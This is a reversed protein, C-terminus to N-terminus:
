LGWIEMMTYFKDLGRAMTKTGPPAESKYGKWGGIRGIIWASWALSGSPFPNKQKQTQGEYKLVLVKLLSKEQKNFMLNCSQKINERGKTLQLIKLAAIYTLLIIKQLGKFTEIQSEEVRLGRSKTIAFLEEIQWRATYWKVIKLADEINEVKHTTFLRWIVAPEGDKISIPLEKIEVANMTIKKPEDNSIKLPNKLEVEAYRVALKALHASRKTKLNHKVQLEIHGKIEQTELYDFLKLSNNSLVRNARIRCIVDTKSKLSTSFLQYIDSERDAVLTRSLAKNLCENSKNLAKIWKYSEKDEIPQNNYGRERKKPLNIDRTWVSLDGYGLPTLDATDLVLVPHAFVGLSWNDTLKGLVGDEFKGRNSSYNYECSDTVCLVHKNDVLTNTVSQLQGILEDM